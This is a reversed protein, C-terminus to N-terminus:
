ADWDMVVKVGERDDNETVIDEHEDLLSDRQGPSEKDADEERCLDMVNNGPQQADVEGLEGEAGGEQEEEAGSDQMDEATVEAMEEDSAFEDNVQQEADPV